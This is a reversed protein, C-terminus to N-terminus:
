MALCQKIKEYSPLSKVPGVASLTPISKLLGEAAARIEEETVQDIKKSMEDATVVHGYILLQRSIREARSATNELSMLVGAKIQTKARAIEDKHLPEEAVRRLEDCVVDVLKESQEESTGAYIGFLGGDDHPSTFTYVSYALGRKERVEQFFRSSMGGGLATSLVGLPYYQDDLYGAGEFGIVLHLQELPKFERFDGGRYIGAGVKKGSHQKLNTFTKNALDVLYNHEINGAASLIMRDAGYEANVYSLLSERSMHRVNDASGLVPRGLPQDPYATQQFHDFVIDDPTDRVQSIEQLIVARERNLEEEDLKSHVLIDAIIDVALDVNEKLVTAYYVTTDRSTYANLQGGVNEIEVAIDLATRRATGKFAMHELFHSVGSVKEEENRSGVNVWVGLTVTEVTDVRDTIM